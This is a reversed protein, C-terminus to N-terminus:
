NYLVYGVEILYAVKATLFYFFEFVIFFIPLIM